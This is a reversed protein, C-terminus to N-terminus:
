TEVAARKLTQLEREVWADVAEEAAPAAQLDTDGVLEAIGDVEAEEEDVRRALREFDPDASGGLPLSSLADLLRRRAAAARQRASLVQQRLRADNLRRRALDLQRRLKFRAAAAEEAQVALAAALTEGAHQRRLLARAQGEAGSRLAAEAQARARGADAQVAALQRQLLSEHAIVKAADGVAAGLRAEMGRLAHKLLAEPPECRDLLDHMNAAVLNSLRRLIGM